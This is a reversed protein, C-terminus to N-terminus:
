GKAATLSEVTKRRVEVQALSLLLDGKLRGVEAADVLALIEGRTVPQGLEPGVWWARGPTPSSVRAVRTQDFTVEGNAVLYEGMPQEGVVAIDIGAKKVAEASAFQLRREHLKCDRENEARPLLRIAAATDYRPLTRKGNVQALDPHDEPCEPVGHVGCWGYDKQRPLLEPKCEVCVSDPVNHTKCWDDPEAAASRLASAKPVTWGTRHGWFALVALLIFVVAGPGWSM